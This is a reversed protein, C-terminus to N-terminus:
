DARGFGAPVAALTVYAIAGSALATALFTQASSMGLALTALIAAGSAMLALGNITHNIGVFRARESAPTLGQIAANLPVAFYGTGAALVFFDLMARWVGGDSRIPGALWLDVGPLAIVLGVLLPAYRAQPRGALWRALLAGTAVGLSSAILLLSVVSEPQGPSAAVYLPFLSTNLSGQFWFWSLGLIPLVVVPVAKLQGLCDRFDGALDAPRLMLGPAQPATTPILLCLLWGALAIAPGGVVVAYFGVPHLVLLNGAVLGSLIAGTSTASMWGNAAILRGPPLLEPLIGFKAPGFLAAEIGALLLAILLLTANLTLLGLAAVAFVLLEAAKTWRIIASKSYKDALRGGPLSLLAYPAVLVMASLAIITGAALGGDTISRFAVLTLLASRLQNHNFASLAQTLLLPLFGRTRTTNAM